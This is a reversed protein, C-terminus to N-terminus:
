RTRIEIISSLTLWLIPIGDILQFRLPHIFDNDVHRQLGFLRLFDSSVVIIDDAQKEVNIGVARHKVNRKVRRVAGPGADFIEILHPM